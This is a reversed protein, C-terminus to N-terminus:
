LPRNGAAAGSGTRDDGQVAARAFHECQDVVRGVIGVAAAAEVNAGSKLSDKLEKDLSSASALTTGTKDDIVQAYINRDSRFVSLRPRDGSRAKLKFRNRRVRRAFLKKQRTAM